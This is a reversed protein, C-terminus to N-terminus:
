RSSLMPLATKSFPSFCCSQVLEEELAPDLWVEYQFQYEFRMKMLELFSVAHKLEEKIAVPTSISQTSYRMMQTLKYCMQAVNPNASEEALRGISSLTNYLFHPNMQAYLAQMQAINERHQLDIVQNMSTHFGLTMKVITEYLENVEYSYKFQM